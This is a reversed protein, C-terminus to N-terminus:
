KSILINKKSTTLECSEIEDELIFINESKRQCMFFNNRAMKLHLRLLKEKFAMKGNKKKRYKLRNKDDIRRILTTHLLFCFSLFFIFIFVFYKNRKRLYCVIIAHLHHLLHISNIIFHACSM